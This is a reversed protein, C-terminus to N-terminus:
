NQDIKVWNLELIRLIQGPIRKSHTFIYSIVSTSRLIGYLVWHCIKGRSYGWHLFESSISYETPRGAAVKFPLVGECVSTQRSCERAVSTLECGVEHKAWSRGKETAFCAPLSRKWNFSQLDGNPSNGIFIKWQTNYPYLSYLRFSTINLLHHCLGPTKM